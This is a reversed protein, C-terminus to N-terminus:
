FMELLSSLVKPLLCSGRLFFPEKRVKECPFEETFCGPRRVASSYVCKLAFRRRRRHRHGSRKQAQAAGALSPSRLRPHPWPNRKLIPCHSCVSPASIVDLHTLAPPGAARHSGPAARRRKGQRQRKGGSGDGGGRGSRERAHSPM